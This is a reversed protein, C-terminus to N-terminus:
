FQDCRVLGKILGDKWIEMDSNAKDFEDLSYIHTVLGKFNWLGSVLMDLGNQACATQYVGDREHTNVATLGKWGWQRIDLTRDGGQHWGGIGLRGNIGTLDGALRLASETGAFEQVLPFGTKVPGDGGVVFDTYRWEQVIKDDPAYVEAAGFKLANARAAERPDIAIVRAAGHLRFLSVMGLGMYGTGVVVVTDGAKRPKMKSAASILCGLPEAVADEDKLAEPVHITLEAPMLCYEAYCPTSCMGTVKDGVRFGQVGDGIEVVTGLPEHGLTLGESAEAWPHWDSMCLGTYKVKVLLTGPEVKLDPVDVVKSKRPGCMVLQKM